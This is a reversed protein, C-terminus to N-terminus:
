QSRLVGLVVYRAGEFEYSCTSLAVVRDEPSYQTQSDFTTNYAAYALLAELNVQYSFARERWQAADIVCGYLLDIRQAAGGGATYLLFYPHERYYAQDKYKTLSGFMQGSKMNHGYVVTLQDTFDPACNFDIFLSGNANYSGDPLRHLYHNYDAARMVPYDIVTGPCELWAVADPSVAQLAAFDIVRGGADTDRAPLERRVSDALRAYSDRGERNSQWIGALRWGALAMVPVSLTLVLCAAIRRGKKKRM